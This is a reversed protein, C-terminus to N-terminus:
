TPRVAWGQRSTRSRRRTFVALFLGSIGCLVISAPEPVVAPSVTFTLPSGLSGFPAYNFGTDNAAYENAGAATDLMISGTGVATAKLLFSYYLGNLGIAGSNTNPSEAFIGIASGASLGGAQASLYDFNACRIPVMPTITFVSGPAVLATLGSMTSPDPVTTFLSSSFDVKSNLNFVFDTNNPSPLGSLNVDIEFTQGVTLTSLNDPSSLTLSLDANASSTTALICLVVGILTKHLM